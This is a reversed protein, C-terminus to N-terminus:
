QELRAEALGKVPVNHEKAYSQIVKLLEQRWQALGISRDPAIMYSLDATRGAWHDKTDDLVQVFQRGGANRGKPYQSKEWVARLESFTKELDSNLGGVANYAGVMLGVARAANQKVAVAHADQLMGDARDLELLLRWHHRTLKAITLFVELNYRNRDTRPFNSQLLGILRESEDFRARAGATWPRAPRGSSLDPM